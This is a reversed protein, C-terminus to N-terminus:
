RPKMWSVSKKKPQFGLGRPLIRGIKKKEYEPTGYNKWRDSIGFKTAEKTYWNGQEYIDIFGKDEILERLVRYFTARSLGFKEAQGYPFTIEGNNTVQWEKIRKRGEVLKRHAKQHFVILVLLAAKGSLNLFAPSQIKDAEIRSFSNGKLIRGEPKIFKKM